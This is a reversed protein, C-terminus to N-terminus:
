HAFAALFFAYVDATAAFAQDRTSGFGHGADRDVRVLIPRGSTTAALLRAAMKGSMWPAVRHDNAGVEFLVAPYAAHPAVHSYPDMELISRYGEATAPDGLEAKQNAGNEAELIRLPNVIGHGLDVAAFLDPRATLARGVLVGGMSVGMAGLKGPSTYRHAILAEACAIFDNVGNMKHERSGDDQWRRGREGGGRVHAYAYIGGRELWALRHAGFGETLSSGYGGYGYLITPHSGDLALDKEHLVTLPVKTGDASTAELDEAVINSFDATSSSALGAPAVKRAHPDYALYAGPHTWTELQFVAGDRRADTELDFVSGAEPLALPTAAGRWPWRLVKSTGDRAVIVYLADRADAEGTITADAPEALDVRAHALDPHALPVSVIRRNPAGHYTQLYLRDGHVIANEVGDSYGAVVHWPTKAAGSTDLESLKAVAFRTESHAGGVSAVLWPSGPTAAVYPWEEPALPLPADPAHGLILVDRAVPQGLRHLKVVQNELPDAGPAPPALQKYFFGSGDPLWSPPNEGWNRDITDPLDKGTAVDLVHLTCFEGGGQAVLYAVRTGDPSPSYGSIAAHTGPAGLTAPDVLIRDTGHRQVALKGLEDDRGQIYHFRDGAVLTVGWVSSVGRGLEDLRALLADRNPLAALTRTAYAAQADLWASFRPNPHGSVSEM